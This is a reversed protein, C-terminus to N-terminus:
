IAIFEEVRDIKSQNCARHALQANSEGTKGGKAWPEIHDVVVDQYGRIGKGCIQCFHKLRSRRWLRQKTEKDFYRKTDLERAYKLVIKQLMKVRMGRKAKQRIAGLFSAKYVDPQNEIFDLLDGKLQRPESLIYYRPILLGAALFLSIFHTRKRYQSSELDTKPLIRVLNKMTKRYKSRLKASEAPTIDRFNALFSELEGRAGGEVAGKKLCNCLDIIDDLPLMRKINEPTYIIDQYFTKNEENIANVMSLIRTGFYENHWREMNTLKIGTSNLRQFLFNIDAQTYEQLYHGDFKYTTIQQQQAANLDKFYYLDGSIEVPFENNLFKYIAKLRQQGDVAYHISVGKKADYEETLYFKPIPVGKMMSDVLLQEDRRNWIYGRQWDPDPILEGRDMKGKIEHVFLDWDSYTVM